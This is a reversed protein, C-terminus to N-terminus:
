RPAEQVRKAAGYHAGGFANKVVATSVGPQTRRWSVNKVCPTVPVSMKPGHQLDQQLGLVGSFM